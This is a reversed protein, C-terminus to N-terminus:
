TAMTIIQFAAEFSALKRQLKVVPNQLPLIDGVVMDVKAREKRNDRFTFSDVYDTYLTGRRIFSVLMGPVIDVGCTYPFGNDWKLKFMPFGRTDWMQGELSFWEDMTFAAAGTQSFSEPWMFPGGAQLRPGNQIEQFALITDDLVGDFLDSPIGVIGIFETISSVFFELSTNILDDIWQPSKGGGVVTWADPTQFTLDYETLGSRKNDTFVVWPPTFNVGLVPAINIGQPAYENKPNLFPQLVNGLISQQLDVADEVIGDLLSGTPGTEGNYCKVDVVITPLTLEAILGAPQPDGPLWLTCTTTIGIDIQFQEILTSLKDFRGSFSVWESTDYIPDTPVVCIPTLLTDQISINPDLESLATHWAAWDSDLAGIDNLWAWAATQLRLAQEGIMTKICTVAPGIYLAESPIQVEIPSFADCWCLIHELWAYDSKCELEITNVGRVMKDHCRWVRGSWRLPGIQITLPVTTDWCAILKDYNMNTGPLSITATGTRNRPFIVELDLYDDLTGIEKYIKSYISVSIDTPPWQAGQAAITAAKVEIAPIGSNLLDLLSEGNYQGTAPSYYVPPDFPLVPPRVFPAPNGVAEVTSSM